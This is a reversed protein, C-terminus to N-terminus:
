SPALTGRCWDAEDEDEDGRDRGHGRGDHKRKTANGPRRVFNMIWSIDPFVKHNRDM